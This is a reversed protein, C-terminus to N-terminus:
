GWIWISRLPEIIIMKFKRKCTRKNYLFYESVLFSM